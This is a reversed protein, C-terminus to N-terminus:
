DYIEALDAYSHCVACFIINFAELSRGYFRIATESETTGSITLKLSYSRVLMDWASIVGCTRGGHVM